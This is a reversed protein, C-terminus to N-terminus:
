ETSFGFAQIKLSAMIVNCFILVSWKYGCNYRIKYGRAQFEVVSIASICTFQFKYYRKTSFSVPIIRTDLVVSDGAKRRHCLLPGEWAKGHDLKQRVLDAGRFFLFIFIYYYKWMFTKWKRFIKPFNFFFFILGSPTWPTTRPCSPSPSTSQIRFTGCHKRQIPLNHSDLSKKRAITRMSSEITATRSKFLTEVTTLPLWFSALM